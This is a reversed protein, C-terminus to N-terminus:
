CSTHAAQCEVNLKVYCWLCCSLLDYELCGWSQWWIVLPSLCRLSHSTVRVSWSGRMAYFKQPLVPNLAVRLFGAGQLHCLVREGEFTYAQMFTLSTCAISGGTQIIFVSCFCFTFCLLYHSDAQIHTMGTLTYYHNNSHKGKRTRRHGMHPIQSAWKPVACDKDYVIGQFNFPCSWYYYEAYM